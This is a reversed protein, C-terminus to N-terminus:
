RRSNSTENRLVEEAVRRYRANGRLKRLASTYYFWVLQRSVGLEHAIEAFSMAPEFQSLGAGGRGYPRIGRGDAARM